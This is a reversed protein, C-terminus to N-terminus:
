ERESELGSILSAFSHEALSAVARHFPTYTVLSERSNSQM